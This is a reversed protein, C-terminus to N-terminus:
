IIKKLHNIMSAEREPSYLSLKQSKKLLSIKIVEDARQNLLEVIKKDIRDIKERLKKLQM